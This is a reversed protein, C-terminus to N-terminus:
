KGASKRKVAEEVVLDVGDARVEGLDWAGGEADTEVKVRTGFVDGEAPASLSFYFTGDATVMEVRVRWRARRKYPKIQDESGAALAEVM